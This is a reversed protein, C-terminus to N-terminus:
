YPCEATWVHVAKGMGGWFFRRRLISLVKEPNSHGASRHYDQWVTKAQSYPVVLQDVPAKTGPEMVERVSLGEQIRLRGWEALLSWMGRSLKNRDKQSPRRGKELWRFVQRLEPDGQQSRRWFTSGTETSPAVFPGEEGTGAPCQEVALVEVDDREPLRSLLDANQNIAGPRYKLKHSYNALQAVWRQEHAGLKATELHVLPNNDTFVTFQAGWLFDKFKETM